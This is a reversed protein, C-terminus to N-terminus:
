RQTIREMVANVVRDCRPAHFPFLETVQSQVRAELRERLLAKARHLRTKVVDETVQLVDAAEATSLGDIERMMFVMRYLEPLADVTHQVLRLVEHDSAQAEPSLREPSHLAVEQGEGGDLAVFARSRRRRMLAENVAIRTLWTSFRAQGQFQGLHQYASVYAQQMVDEAEDEDRIISRVARYVRPNHRRMLLEFSAVDGELVRRAIEEDSPAEAPLVSALPQEM